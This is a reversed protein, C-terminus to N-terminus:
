PLRLQGVDRKIQLESEACAHLVCITGDGRVAGGRESGVRGGGAGRAARGGLLRGRECGCARGAEVPEVASSGLGEKDPVSESMNTSSLVSESSQRGSFIDHREHSVTVLTPM